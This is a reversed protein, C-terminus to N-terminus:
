PAASVIEPRHPLAGSRLYIAAPIADFHRSHQLAAAMAAAISRDLQSTLMRDILLRIM